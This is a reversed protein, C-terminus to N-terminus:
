RFLGSTVIDVRNIKNEELLPVNTLSKLELSDVLVSGHM